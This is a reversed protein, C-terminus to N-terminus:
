STECTCWVWPFYQVIRGETMM